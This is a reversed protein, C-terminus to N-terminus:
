ACALPSFGILGAAMAPPKMYDASICFPGFQRPHLRRTSGRLKTVYQASLLHTSLMTSPPLPCLMSVFPQPILYQAM